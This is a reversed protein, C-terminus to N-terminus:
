VKQISIGHVIYGGKFLENLYGTIYQVRHDDQLEGHRDSVGNETVFIDPNEYTASIWKM